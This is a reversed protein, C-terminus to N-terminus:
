EMTDRMHEDIRRHLLKAGSNILLRKGDVSNIFRCAKIGRWFHKRYLFCGKIEDVFLYFPLRLNIQILMASNLGSAEFRISQRAPLFLRFPGIQDGGVFASPVLARKQQM